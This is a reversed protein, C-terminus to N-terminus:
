IQFPIYYKVMNSSNLTKLFSSLAGKKGMNSCIVVLVFDIAIIPYYNVEYKDKSFFFAELM